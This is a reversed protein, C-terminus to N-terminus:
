TQITAVLFPSQGRAESIRLSASREVIQHAAWSKDSVPDLFIFKALLDLLESESMLNTGVFHYSRGSDLVHGSLGLAKVCEIVLSDHGEKSPVKFDLLPIHRASGDALLVKSNVALPSPMKTSLFSELHSREVYVYGCNPQHYFAEQLLAESYCKEEMFISLLAPWFRMGNHLKKELAKSILFADEDSINTLRKQLKTATSFTFFRCTRISPQNRVIDKLLDISDM